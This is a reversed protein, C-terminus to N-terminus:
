RREKNKDILYKYIKRDTQLSNEFISKRSDTYINGMKELAKTDVIFLEKGFIPNRSTFNQDFRVLHRNIGLLFTGDALPTFFDIEPAMTSNAIVKYKKGGPLDECPPDGGFDETFKRTKSLMIPTVQKMVRGDPAVLAFYRFYRERHCYRVEHDTSVYLLRNGNPFRHDIEAYCTDRMDPDNAPIPIPCPVKKILSLTGNNNRNRELFPDRDSIRWQKGSFLGTMVYSNNISLWEYDSNNKGYAGIIFDGDTSPYIGLVNVGYPM